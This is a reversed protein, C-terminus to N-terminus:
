KNWFVMRIKLFKEKPMLSKSFYQKFNVYKSIRGLKFFKWKYYNWKPSLVSYVQMKKVDSSVNIRGKHGIKTFTGYAHLLLRYGLAHTQVILHIDTQNIM